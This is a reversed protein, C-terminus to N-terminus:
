CNELKSYWNGLERRLAGGRGGLHAVAGFEGGGGLWDWGDADLIGSLCEWVWKTFERVNTTANSGATVKVGAHYQCSCGHQLQHGACYSKKFRNFEGRKQLTVNAVLPSTLMFLFHFIFPSVSLVATTQVPIMVQYVNPMCSISLTFFPVDVAMLKNHFAKDAKDSSRM